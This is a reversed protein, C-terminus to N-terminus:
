SIREGLGNTVYERGTGDITVHREDIRAQETRSQITMTDRAALQWERSTVHGMSAEGAAIRTIGRSAIFAAIQDKENM